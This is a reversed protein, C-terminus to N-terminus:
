QDGVPTWGVAQVRAKHTSLNPGVPPVPHLYLPPVPPPPSKTGVIKLHDGGGRSHSVFTTTYIFLLDDAVNDYADKVTVSLM